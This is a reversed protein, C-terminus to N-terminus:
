VGERRDSRMRQIYEAMAEISQFNEITLDEPPVSLEFESELYAVLRMIGMSDVLGSAFLDVSLTVDAEENGMEAIIFHSIKSQLHATNENSM